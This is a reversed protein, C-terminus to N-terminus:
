WDWPRFTRGWDRSEIFDGVEGAVYSGGQYLKFAGWGLGQGAESLIPICAAGGLISSSTDGLGMDKYIERNRMARNALSTSWGTKKDIWRGAEWGMSFAGVVAAAPLLGAEALIFSLSSTGSGIAGMVDGNHIDNAFQIVSIVGAARGVWKLAFGIKGPLGVVIRPLLARPPIRKGNQLANRAVNILEADTGTKFFIEAQPSRGAFRTPNANIAAQADRTASRVVGAIYAKRTSDISKMQIVATSTVQDAKPFYRGLNNGALWELIV